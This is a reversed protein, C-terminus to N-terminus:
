QEEMQDILKKADGQWEDVRGAPVELTPAYRM